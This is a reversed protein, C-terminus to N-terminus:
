QITYVTLSCLKFWGVTSGRGKPIRMSRNTTRNSSPFRKGEGRGGEGLWFATPALSLLFSAPEAGKSGRRTKVQPGYYNLVNLFGGRGDRTKPHVLLFTSPSYFILNVETGQSRGSTQEYIGGPQTTNCCGATRRLIGDRSEQLPERLQTGFRNKKRGRFKAGDGFENTHEDGSECSM